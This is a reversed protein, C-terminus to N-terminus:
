VLLRRPGLLEARTEPALSERRGLEPLRRQFFWTAGTWVQRLSTESKDRTVTSAPNDPAM